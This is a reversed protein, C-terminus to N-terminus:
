EFEFSIFKWIRLQKGTSVNPSTYHEYLKLFSMM